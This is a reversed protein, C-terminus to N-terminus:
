LTSVTALPHIMIAWLVPTFAAPINILIIWRVIHLFMRHSGHLQRDAQMNLALCCKSKMSIYSFHVEYLAWCHRNKNQKFVWTTWIENGADSYILLSIFIWPTTHFDSKCWRAYHGHFYYIFLKVSQKMSFIQGPWKLNTSLWLNQSHSFLVKIVWTLWLLWDVGQGM